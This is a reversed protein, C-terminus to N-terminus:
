WIYPIIRYPVKIKYRKYQNGLKPDEVMTREQFVYKDMLKGSRYPCQLDRVEISVKLACGGIAIPLVYLPLYSWLTLVLSATGILAGSHM